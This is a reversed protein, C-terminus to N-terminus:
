SKVFRLVGNSETIILYVGDALASIDIARVADTEFSMMKRGLTNFISGSIRDNGWFNLTEAVPNPWISVPNARQGSNGLISSTIKAVYAFNNVGGADHSFSDFNAMGRSMGSVAIDNVQDFSIGDVRDESTGGFTKAM